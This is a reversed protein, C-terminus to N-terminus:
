AAVADGDLLARACPALVDTVVTRLLRVRERGSSIGHARRELDDPRVTPLPGTRELDARADAFM